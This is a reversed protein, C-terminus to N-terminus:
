FIDNNKLLAYYIKELNIHNINNLTIYHFKVDNRLIKIIRHAFLLSLLHHLPHLIIYLQFDIHISITKM